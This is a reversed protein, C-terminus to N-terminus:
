LRARRTPSGVSPASLSRPRLPTLPADANTASRLKGQCELQVYRGMMTTTQVGAPLRRHEPRVRSSPLATTHARARTEFFPLRAGWRTCVFLIGCVPLLPDERDLWLM